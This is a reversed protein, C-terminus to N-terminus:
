GNGTAGGSRVSQFSSVPLTGYQPKSQVYYNSGSLLVSPRSNPTISGEFSGTASHGDGWGAITTSGTTGALVTSGSTLQIATPVNNLKINELILSGATAPSSSSTYATVIGVPTNTISSDLLTVSGVTQASSGGAAINIGTKCNNISLGQYVWGWDWLQSIATVCDNFVLNRM